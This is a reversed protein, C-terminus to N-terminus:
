IKQIFWSFTATSACVDNIDIIDVSIDILARGKREFQKTFKEISEETINPNATIKSQAPKKYKIQADRLIPIVKGELHPFLNQLYIGSQTEALTFQAGAHITSIDNYINNNFELYLNKNKQKIDIYKVFPINTVQM